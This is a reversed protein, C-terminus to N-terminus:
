FNNVKQNVRGMQQVSSCLFLLSQQPISRQYLKQPTAGPSRQTDHIFFLQRVRHKGKLLSIIRLWYCDTDERKDRTEEPVNLISCALNQVAPGDHGPFFLDDGQLLKQAKTLGLGDHLQHSNLLFFTLRDCNGGWLCVRPNPCEDFTIVSGAARPEHCMQLVTAGRANMM